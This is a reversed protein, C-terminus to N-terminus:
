QLALFEQGGIHVCANKKRYRFYLLFLHLMKILLCLNPYTGLIWNNTVLVKCYLSINKKEQMAWNPLQTLTCPWGSYLVGSFLQAKSLSEVPCNPLAPAQVM